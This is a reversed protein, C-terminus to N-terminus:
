SSAEDGGTLIDVIYQSVSQDGVRAKHLAITNETAGQGLASWLKMAAESPLSVFYRALNNIRNEDLSNTFIDAGTFKEIM